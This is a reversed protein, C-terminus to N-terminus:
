QIIIENEDNPDYISKSSSAAIPAPPPADEGDTTPPTGICVENEEDTNDELSSGIPEEERKVFNCLYEVIHFEYTGRSVAKMLATDGDKNAHFIDAGNNLLYKIIRFDGRAAARLLATDGKADVM